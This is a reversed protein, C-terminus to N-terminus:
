LSPPKLCWWNCIKKLVKKNQIPTYGIFPSGKHSLPYLMQRSYPLGPNSGQTPFIGQLLSLPDWELIRAQLIGHVTYSSGLSEARIYVHIWKGGFGAGMWAAVYCQASSCTRYQLDKNIIWKFHLLTYLCGYLGFIFSAMHYKEKQTQCVESLVVSKLDLCTAAFPMIENKKHSLLIGNYTHVVAEEDMKRNIAM